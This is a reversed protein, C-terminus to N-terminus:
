RVNVIAKKTSPVRKWTGPKELSTKKISYINALKVFLFALAVMIPNRFTTKILARIKVVPPVFYEKYIEKGFTEEFFEMETQDARRLVSVYDNFNDPTRYLAVANKAFVFSYNKSKIFHYVYRAVQLMNSPIRIEKAIKRRIAFAGGRINHINNGNNINIRVEYWVKEWTNIIRGPFKKSDIAQMNIGVIAIKQDGFIKMIEELDNKKSLVIDADLIILIDSKNMIFLENLRQAKGKRRKDAVLLVRKDNNLIEQVTLDTSDTSGDSIVIIKELVYANQTQKLISSILYGINQEENYAPIGVSLKLLKNKM